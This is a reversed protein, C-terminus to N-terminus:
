VSSATNQLVVLRDDARSSVNFEVMESTKGSLEDLKQMCLNAHHGSTVDEIIYIGDPSLFPFYTEINRLQNDIHHSADDIIIDFQLGELNQAAQDKDESDYVFLKARPYELLSREVDEQVVPTSFGIQQSFDEVGYVHSNEFFDHWMKLSGGHLVGIELLNNEKLRLDEFVTDYFPVYNHDTGKDTNYQLHIDELKM